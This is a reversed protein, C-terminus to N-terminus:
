YPQFYYEESNWPEYPDLYNYFRTMLLDMFLTIIPILNVILDKTKLCEFKWFFCVWEQRDLPCRTMLIAGSTGYKM